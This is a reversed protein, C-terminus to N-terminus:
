LTSPPHSSPAFVKEPALGRVIDGTYIANPVAECEAWCGPCGDVWRRAAHAEPSHLVEHASATSLSGVVDGNFQCVPVSGDPLIRLHSRLAVCRPRPSPPSDGQLRSLLGRQYYRKGVRLLPDRVERTRQLESRVLTVVDCGELGPHLPYGPAPHQSAAHQRRADLSYTASEAYALVTTVEVGLSAFRAQLAPADDLSRASIVTHNVSVRAGSRRLRALRRVTEEARAFTVASGRNGDHVGALGDLSVLFRLARPRPFSAAFEEAAEPFSGNTTIHMILPRSAAEVAHALAAFDTRVFPEGGSLRVVDLRGLGAFVRAVDDPSMEPTRQLRWSDCMRCRANCRMTVLYTCWSPRPVDGRRNAALSALFRLARVGEERRGIHLPRSPRKVDGERRGWAM